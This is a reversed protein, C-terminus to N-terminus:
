QPLLILSVPLSRIIIKDKFNLQIRFMIYAQFQEVTTTRILLSVLLSSLM